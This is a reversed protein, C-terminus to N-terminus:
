ETLKKLDHWIYSIKDLVVGGIEYGINGSREGGLSEYFTRSANEALVWLIMSDYGQEIMWEASAKVLAKGFGKGQYERLVYVSYLEAMRGSEDSREPGSTAFGVVDGGDTEVVLYHLNGENASLHKKFMETGKVPDLKDLYDQPIIGTYTTRWTAIHVHAIAESDDVTAQRILM